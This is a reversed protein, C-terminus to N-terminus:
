QNQIAVLQKGFIVLALRFLVEIAQEVILEAEDNTLDFEDKFLVIFEEIVKEDIAKLENFITGLNKIVGVIGVATLTIGIGEKISIKGDDALAADVKNASRIIVRLAETTKVFGEM